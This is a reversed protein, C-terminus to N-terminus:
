RLSMSNKVIKILGNKSTGPLHFLILEKLIANVTNFYVVVSCTIGVLINVKSLYLVNRTVSYVVENHLLPEKNNETM